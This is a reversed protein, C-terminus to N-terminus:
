LLGARTAARDIAATVTDPLAHHLMHGTGPLIALRADPLRTALPESHVSAYVTTDADGHLIEVPVTIQAYASQMRALEARLRVVQRTSARLTATRAAMAAGARRAYGQPLPDPAFVHVLERAVLRETAMAAVVPALVAGGPPSGFFRYYWPLKGPWPLTAGALLVLGAVPEELAWAMAVAGGYSHGVLLPNCAGLQAVADALHRAQEAPSEATRAFPRGLSPDIRESWGHGPRDVTYVRFRNALREALDCTFDRASGGAGHILVLDPGAGRVVVHVERGAVRVVDGEPPYRAETAAERLDALRVAGRGAAIALLAAFLAATLM